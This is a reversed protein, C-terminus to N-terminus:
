RMFLGGNVDWCAGTVSQARESVMLTITDAIFAPDGLVGMPISAEVAALKAPTLIERVIPLDLPGPAVSNVTVGSKALEKAFVKTLTAVGGKAAAYHGGTGSGGSQGALSAVNVIRGYGRTAFFAGFVQCGFFAGRLNIAITDDFDEQTIEMLPIAKTVAANNILVDAGGWRATLADRAAEFDSKLRVDLSMAFATEGTADLATAVREANATSIDAVAVKYGAAHLSKAICEGLGRGAGTILAVKNTM